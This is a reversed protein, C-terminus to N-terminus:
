ASSPRKANSLRPECVGCLARRAREYAALTPINALSYGPEAALFDVLKSKDIKKDLDCAQYIMVVCDHIDDLRMAGKYRM